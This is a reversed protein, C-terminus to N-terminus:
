VDYFIIGLYIKIVEDPWDVKLDYLMHSVAILPEGTRTKVLNGEPTFFYSSFVENLLEDVRSLRSALISLDPEPYSIVININGELDVLGEDSVGPKISYRVDRIMNGFKVEIIYKLTEFSELTKEKIKIRNEM